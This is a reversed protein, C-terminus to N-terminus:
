ASMFFCGATKWGNELRKGAVVFRRLGKVVSLGPDPRASRNRQAALTM